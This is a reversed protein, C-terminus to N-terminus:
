VWLRQLKPASEKGVLGGSQGLALPLQFAKTHFFTTIPKQILM